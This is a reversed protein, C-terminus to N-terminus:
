RLDAESPPQLFVNKDVTQARVNPDVVTGTAFRLNEIATAYNLRAGLEQSLAGTLRDEMTLVNVLASLGLRFKEQEDELALRYYQVAERAKYLTSISNSLTTVATIVSSAINRALDTEALVAQQYSANAQALQGIAVDNRPPFAFNLSAYANPGGLRNFPAAFPREFGTGEILGNYGANLTLNLQPRLQNRAAPLLEEASQRRLKAAILDPRAKMAKQVFKNTIEPNVNPISNDPWEPFPDAADPSVAVEIVGLGMALALNQQANIVGQEAAIRSATRGDLNAILQNIEAKAVRDADILIQVDRVYKAGREESDRAIRLNGVAAVANWYSVATNSLLQAVVQNTDHLSADVISEASLEQADVAARGRNRLFPLIIQFGLQSQNVGEQTGINDTLRNMTLSPAILIGNRFLKQAGVTYTTANAALNSVSLGLLEYQLEQATTLPTINRNQSMGATLATDFQGSAVRLSGENFRVQEDQVQIGPHRALTSRLADM